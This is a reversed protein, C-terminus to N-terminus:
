AESRIAATATRAISFSHVVQEGSGDTGISYVTGCLEQAGGLDTTGYLTGAVDLPADFPNAGDGTQGFSHLVQEAGTASNVSYITGCTGNPVGSKGKCLFQNTYVGGGVTTGYITGNVNIVGSIPYAGDQGYGFSHVITEAYGSSTPHLRFLAGEDYEGGYYTTGYLDGSKDAALTAFSSAGDGPAGTFKHLVELKYTRKGKSPVLRYIIGCGTNSGSDLPTSCNKSGGFVTAGYLATESGILGSQAGPLDYGSKGYDYFPIIHVTPPYSAAKLVALVTGNPLVPAMAAHGCSATWVLSVTAVLRIFPKM